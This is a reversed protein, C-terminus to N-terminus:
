YRRILALRNFQELTGDELFVVQGGFAMNQEIVEDVLDDIADPQDRQEIREVRNDVLRVPQFYGEEVLLTDGQGQQVAQWIDNLDSSVRNQGVAAELKALAEMREQRLAKAFADWARRVLASLDEKKDQPLLQLRLMEPRDAIERYVAYNREVAAVLVPLPNDKVEQQVAKDVRNFFEAVYRDPKKPDEMMDYSGLTFNNEMPFGDPQFAEVRDPGIAEVLHAEQQNLSLVYYNAQRNLARFLDRTQFTEDLTVHAEVRIPLRIMEARKQDVFLLLSDLNYQHDISDALARLRELLDRAVRKDVEKELRGESTKILEKLVIPDKKNEPHTRHTPLAITLCPFGYVDRLAKLQQRIM